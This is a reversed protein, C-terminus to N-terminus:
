PLYEQSTNSARHLFFDQQAVRIEDGFIAEQAVLDLLAYL